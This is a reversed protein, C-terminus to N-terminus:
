ESYLPGTYNSFAWLRYGINRWIFALDPDNPFKESEADAFHVHKKGYERIEKEIAIHDDDLKDKESQSMDERYLQSGAYGHVRKELDTIAELYQIATGPIISKKQELYDSLSLKQRYYTLPYKRYRHKFAQMTLIEFPQDSSPSKKQFVLDKNLVYAVHDVPVGKLYPINSLVDSGLAIVDGQRLAEGSIKEMLPSLAWTAFEEPENNSIGQTYGSAYFVATYCRPGDTPSFKGILARVREPLKANNVNFISWGKPIPSSVSTPAPSSKIDLSALVYEPIKSEPGAFYLANEPKSYLFGGGPNNSEFSWDNGETSFYTFVPDREEAGDFLHSSEVKSGCAYLVSSSIVAVLTYHIFKM